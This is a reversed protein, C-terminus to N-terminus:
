ALAVLKMLALLELLAVDMQMIFEKLKDAETMIECDLKSQREVNKSVVVKDEQRWKEMKSTFTKYTIYATFIITGLVSGIAQIKDLIANWNM